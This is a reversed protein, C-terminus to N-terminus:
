CSGGVGTFCGSQAVGLLVDIAVIKLERGHM